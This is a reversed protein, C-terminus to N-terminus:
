TISLTGTMSPHIECHFDYEGPKLDLAVDVTNGADVQEDIDAKDVTFTHTTTDTNEIAITEGAPESLSDPSFAFNAISLNVSSTGGGGDGAPQDGAFQGAGQDRGEGGSTTEDSGSCAIAATAFLGVAAITVIVRIGRRM